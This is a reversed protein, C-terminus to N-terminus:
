YQNSPVVAYINTETLLGDLLDTPYTKYNIVQENLGLATWKSGASVRDEFQFHAGGASDTIFWGYNRLAIAIIKASRRTQASLQAPLRAVWANIQADTVNLAFRTGMPLGKYTTKGDSKTAPPVFNPESNRIPMSLAHDIHGQAIEEPRVLMALYEIGAGRSPKYGDIKTRYDGPVLNANSARITSGDFSVQWLDWERGTRPDLVIIQGDTGWAGQWKPNWPMTKGNLGGWDSVIRYTGTAQNADYCPYTYGHFSLNFNGARDTARYWLRTAFWDSQWDRPLNAVPINWPARAGFPRVYEAAAVSEISGSLAAAGALFFVVPSLKKKWTSGVGSKGAGSGNRYRNTMNM